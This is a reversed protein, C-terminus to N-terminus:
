CDNWLVGDYHWQYSPLDHLVKYKQGQIGDKGRSLLGNVKEFAMDHGHLWLSGALHLVSEISNAHRKIATSYPMRDATIGLGSRIQNIPLELASHSGVEILHFDGNEYLREVADAFLVQSELNSRWYAPGVGPFIQEATVSSIFMAGRPLKSSVELHPLARDM